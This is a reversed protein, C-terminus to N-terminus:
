LETLAYKAYLALGITDILIKPFKLKAKSANLEPFRALLVSALRDKPSKPDGKKKAGAIKRHWVHPAVVKTKVDCALLIGYWVGWDKGFTLMAKPSQMIEYKKANNVKMMVQVNELVAFRVVYTNLIEELLPKREELTRPAKIVDVVKEPDLSLVCIGGAKGPDIGLVVELQM